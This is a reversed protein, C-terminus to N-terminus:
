HMRAAPRETRRRPPALIFTGIVLLAFFTYCVAFVWPPASFFILRHLWHAIFGAEAYPDQGGAIRLRNELDTLPCHVGAYTQLVVYVIALLHAIRFTWRRTWNWRLFYGIWVLLLGGVVFAIFAAHAILIADATLRHANM